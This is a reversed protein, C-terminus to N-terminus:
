TWNKLEENSKKETKLITEILSQKENTEFNSRKNYHSDLIAFLISNSISQRHDEEEQNSSLEANSGHRFEDYLKRFQDM